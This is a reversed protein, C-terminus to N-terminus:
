KKLLQTSKRVIYKGTHYTGVLAVCIIIAGAIVMGDQGEAYDEESMVNRESPKM